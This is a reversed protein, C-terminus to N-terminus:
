EYGFQQALRTVRPLFGQARWSLPGDLRLAETCPPRLVPNELFIPDNGFRASAPGFCAYPSREPHKMADIAEEDTRLGLWGAVARLTEDPNSLIDEGRVRLWQGEPVSELFRCINMHREHWSQQPDFEPAHRGNKARQADAVSEFGLRTLWPPVAEDKKIRRLLKFISEGYGRPHRVLHIFHAQPFMAHVHQLTQPLTVTSASKEVPVRPHVKVAFEELLMAATLHFRRRLWGRALAITRDTQEQFYLQAITRLLGDRLRPAKGGVRVWWEAATEVPFLHLEPFGYMQPHQGLMACAVSSFSRPLTLIFVPDAFADSANDTQGPASSGAPPSGDRPSAMSLARSRTPKKEEKM